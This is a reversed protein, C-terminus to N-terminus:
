LCPASAPMSRLRAAELVTVGANVSMVGGSMVDKARMTNGGRGAIAASKIVVRLWKGDACDLPFHGELRL